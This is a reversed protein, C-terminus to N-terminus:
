SYVVQEESIEREREEIYEQEEHQEEFDWYESENGLLERVQGNWRYRIVTVFNANNPRILECISLSPVSDYDGWLIQSNIIFNLELKNLLRFMDRINKEDVGAFAEDLSIVRPCDKRAGEYKSYVASFLPVYMAMAKEGGSFKDFANNTLEKRAEGTKRFFLQFEFWKRYDLIDKMIMHFTQSAGKDELEKRAQAIKSRFHASLKEMDEEKLLGADSKLIEVLERTDIQEETEATRNKWVLSFSLGSSTNMQEMLSNMKKVWQESHYIKARIKKGVTNALIDEFLQRDSERLLKENEEISEEIFQALTLFRVDKGQIRASLELRKNSAYAKKLREDEYENEDGFIYEMILNYETFYHRNEHYKEQLSSAYDERLKDNKEEGKFDIIVRRAIKIIDEVEDYSVVYGLAYEKRFGERCIDNIKQLFDMDQSLKELKERTTEKKEKYTQANRIANEIKEPVERLVRICEDIEHKIEDYNLNKLMEEYNQKQFIAEDIRRNMEKLDYVMDDIDKLIEEIQIETSKSERALQLFKVHMTELDAIMDRYEAVDEEADKYTELNLAFEMKATVERVYDHAQKLQKHASEATEEKRLCEKEKAELAISQSRVLNYATEIDKKAPFSDFESKLKELKSSLERIKQEEIRVLKEIENIEHELKQIMEMRYRKRAEAGIFKPVYDSSTKGKLIGISYEGKANVYVLGGEDELAISKLVNEVDIETIYSGEPIVPKLFSLLNNQSPTQETYIYKDGMDAETNMLKDKYKEPVIIANLLGMDIIAEELIGKLGEDVEEKFDVVKYLPFCEVGQESLRKRNAIVKEESTPEPDKQNKWEDLEINKQDREKELGTKISETEIIDRRFNGEIENQAKRAESLIDDFGFTEGYGRIARSTFNMGESPIKLIENLKEWSYVQENLEEKTEEFLNEGKELERRAEEREKRASEFEMLTRDYNESKIKEEELAKKAKTIKEKYRDLENRLFKYDYEESLNKKLEDQTFYHEDFYIDEAINAMGELHKIISDEQFEQKNKIDKLDYNLKVERDKKSGLSKDKNTRKDYLDKLEIDIKEIEQKAKFSDHQELQARKHEYSNKTLKLQEHSDEYEKHKRTCEDLESELALIEKKAKDIGDQSKAYDSAKEFLVFRNYRNYEAKLRDSANKSEKLVELQSKINDMNEIAESMPRLDDDSLPQLSNNMIEYIVTPKFDKSLKPTRIQILLKILEDYDELSEFGFLLRNVMAMYERQSEYIEGGEAIRNRLEIKSLPIKEGVNKYLLFDRGIRRGDTISFGWFDLGKGRRARLGMGITMFSGTERKCFEMFLYATSEDKGKEDEGLLYNELKRARSGFPDLREPSKNGDLLLPIFSQMTVSKGSGNSGRLLLRGDSFNFEEEDYYWFNILGIRNVVWRNTLLNQM